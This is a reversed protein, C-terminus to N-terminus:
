NSTTQFMFQLEPSRKLCKQKFNDHMEAPPIRTSWAWDIVGEMMKIARKDTMGIMLQQASSRPKGWKKLQIVSDVTPMVMDCYEEVGSVPIESETPDFKFGRKSKSQAYLDNARQTIHNLRSQQIIKRQNLFDIGQQAIENGNEKSVLLWAYGEEFDQKTGQGNVYAQGVQLQAYANGLMASKHMLQFSKTYDKPVGTGELYLMGLGFLGDADGKDALRKCPLYSELTQTKCAILDDASAAPVMVILGASLLLILIRGSIWILNNPEIATLTKKM